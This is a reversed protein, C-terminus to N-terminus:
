ETGTSDPTTAPGITFGVSKLIDGQADLIEVDWQGTWTPWMKKSSWTRWNTSKVPLEVRALETGRWKWALYISTSDEAGTVKCWVFVKEVDASYSTMSDVPMREEVGSCVQTEVNVAATANGAVLAVCVFGLVLVARAYKVM